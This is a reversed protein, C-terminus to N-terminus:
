SKEHKVLWRFPRVWAASRGDPDQFVMELTVELLEAEQTVNLREASRRWSWGPLGEIAGNASASLDADSLRWVAILEQAEHRAILQRRATSMQDLSASQAVLMATVSGGLIVLSAIVEVLTM